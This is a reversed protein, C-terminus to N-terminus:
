HIFTMLENRQKILVDSGLHIHSISAQGRGSQMNNEESAYWVYKQIIERVTTKTKRQKKKRNGSTANNDESRRIPQLVFEM